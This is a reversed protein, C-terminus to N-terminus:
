SVERPRGLSGGNAAQLARERARMEYEELSKQFDLTSPRMEASSRPSLRRHESSQQSHRSADEPRLFGSATDRISLEETTSPRHTLCGEYMQSWLRAGDVARDPGAERSRSGSMALDSEPDIPYPSVARSAARSVARSALPIAELAPLIALEPYELVGGVSISSRFGRGPPRLSAGHYENLKRLMSKEFTHRRYKEGWDQEEQEEEEEEKSGGSLNRVRVEMAFDRAYVLDEKGASSISREARSHSPFRSWSAPPIASARTHKNEQMEDNEMWYIDRSSTPQRGSKM